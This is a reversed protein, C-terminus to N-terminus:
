VMLVLAVITRSSDSALTRLTGNMNPVIVKEIFREKIMGPNPHHFITQGKQYSKRFGAHDM